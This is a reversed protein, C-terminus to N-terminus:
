ICLSYLPTNNPIDPYMQTGISIHATAMEFDIEESFLTILLKMMVIM